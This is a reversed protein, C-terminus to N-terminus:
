RVRIKKEKNCMDSWIVIDRGFLSFRRAVGIQQHGMKLNARISSKNRPSIESIWRKFGEQKLAIMTKKQTIGTLGKGRSDKFFEADIGHIDSEMHPFYTPYLPDKAIIWRYGVLRGDEKILWLVAGKDFREKIIYEARRGMLETNSEILLKLDGEEMEECSRFPMTTINPPLEFGEEEIETIDRVWITKRQPVIKPFIEFFLWRMSPIFGDLKIIKALTKGLIKLKRMMSNDGLM